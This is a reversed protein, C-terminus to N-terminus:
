DVNIYEFDEETKKSAKKNIRLLKRKKIREKLTLSQDKLNMQIIKIAEAKSEQLKMINKQNLTKRAFKIAPADGDELFIVNIVQEAKSYKV